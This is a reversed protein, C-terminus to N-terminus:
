EISVKSSWEGSLCPDETDTAGACVVSFRSPPRLSELVAYVSNESNAIRKGIMMYSRPFTPAAETCSRLMRRLQVCVCVLECHQFLGKPESATRTDSFGVIDALLDADSCFHCLASEAFM